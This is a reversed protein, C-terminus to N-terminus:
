VAAAIQRPGLSITAGTANRCVIAGVSTRCVIGDGSFRHLVPTSADWWVPAPVTRPAGRAALAIGRRVALSRCVLQGGEVRCAASADPLRFAHPEGGGAHFALSCAALAVAAPFLLRRMRRYFPAAASGTEPYQCGARRRDIEASVAVVFPAPM